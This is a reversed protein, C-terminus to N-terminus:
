WKLGNENSDPEGLEHTVSEVKPLVFPILKCIINLRQVHDLEKLTEPLLKLENQITEKLTDRINGTMPKNYEVQPKENKLKTTYSKLLHEIETTDITEYETNEVYNYVREYIFLKQVKNLNAKEILEVFEQVAKLPRGHQGILISVAKDFIQIPTEPNEFIDKQLVECLMKFAYTNWHENETKLYSEISAIEKTKM